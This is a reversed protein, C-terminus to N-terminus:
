RGGGGSGGGYGFVNCTCETISSCVVGETEVEFAEIEPAEYKIVGKNEM